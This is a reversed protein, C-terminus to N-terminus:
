GVPSPYTIGREADLREAELWRATHMAMAGHGSPRRCKSGAPRGCDPCAIMLPCQSGEVVEGSCAGCRTFGDRLTM